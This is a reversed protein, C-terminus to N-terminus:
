HDYKHYGSSIKYILGGGGEMLEMVVYYHMPEEFFDYCTVINRHRLQQMIEVEQHLSKIDVASLSARNIIKVAVKESTFKHIGLRVTSYGGTGLVADLAYIAKFEHPVDKNPPGFRESIRRNIAETEDVDDVDRHCEYRRSAIGAPVEFASDM